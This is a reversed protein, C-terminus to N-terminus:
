ASHRLRLILHQISEALQTIEGAGSIELETGERNEAVRDVAEKLRVLPKVVQRPLVFSVWVSFLFTFFSVSGLAWEAQHILHRAQAHDQQVRNWNRTEIESTATLLSQSSEQLDASIKELAPNGAQVTDTIQADFSGVRRRLDEITPERGNRRAGKLLTNLDNEYARLVAQIRDTPAAGPQNVATVAAAFRQQYLLLDNLASSAPVDEQPQLDRIKLLIQSVKSVAEHNKDVSSEDRLLLYNREARRAELMQISAQEALSAAPADTNVIRDVIWGMEFLYYIALFIVPVLILRVIALSYAVRKRLSSTPKFIKLPRRILPLAASPRRAPDFIHGRDALFKTM